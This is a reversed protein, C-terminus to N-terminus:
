NVAADKVDDGLGLDLQADLEFQERYHDFHALFASLKDDPMRLLKGIQKFAGKHINHISEGNKALASAEGGLKEQKTKIADFKKRHAQLQAKDPLQSGTKQNLKTVNNAEKGM